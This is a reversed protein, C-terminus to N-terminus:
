SREVACRDHVGHGAVVYRPVCSKWREAGIMFAMGLSLGQFLGFAEGLGPGTGVCDTICAQAMSCSLLLCRASSHTLSTVVAPALARPPPSLRANELYGTAVSLTPVRAFVRVWSRKSTPLLAPPHNVLRFHSVFGLASVRRRSVVLRVYAVFTEAVRLPKHLAM